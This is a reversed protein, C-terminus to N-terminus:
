SVMEFVDEDTYIGQARAKPILIRRSEDFADLWLMRQVAGRVYESATLRQKKAARVVERRMDGPLSVTLTERM